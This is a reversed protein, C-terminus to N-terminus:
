PLRSDLLSLGFCVAHQRPAFNYGSRSTAEQGSFKREIGVRIPQLEIRALRVAMARPTEGFTPTEM